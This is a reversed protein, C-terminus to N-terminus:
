NGYFWMKIKNRVRKFFGEKKHKDLIYIPKNFVVAPVCSIKYMEDKLYEIHNQLKM